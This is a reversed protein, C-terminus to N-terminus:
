VWNGDRDLGIPWYPMCALVNVAQQYDGDEILWQLLFVEPPVRDEVDCQTNLAHCSLWFDRVLSVLGPFSAPGAPRAIWAERIAQRENPGLEKRAELTEEWWRLAVGTVLDVEGRYRLFMARHSQSVRFGHGSRWVPAGCPLLDLPATLLRQIGKSIREATGLDVVTV